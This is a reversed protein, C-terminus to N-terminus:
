LMLTEPVAVSPLRVQVPDAGNEIRACCVVFTRTSSAHETAVEPAWTTSALPVLKSQAAQLLTVALGVWVLTPLETMSEAVAAAGKGLAM